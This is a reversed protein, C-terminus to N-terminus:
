GAGGSWEQGGSARFAGPRRVRPTEDTDPDEVLGTTAERAIRTCDRSGLEESAQLAGPDISPGAGADDPPSGEFVRRDPVTPRDPIRGPRGHPLAASPSVVVDVTGCRDTRSRVLPGSARGAADGIRPEGRPPPSWGSVSWAGRGVASLRICHPDGAGNDIRDSRWGFIVESGVKPRLM